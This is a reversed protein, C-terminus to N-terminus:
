MVMVLPMCPLLAEAENEDEETAPLIPLRRWIGGGGWGGAAAGPQGQVQVRHTQRRYNQTSAAFM